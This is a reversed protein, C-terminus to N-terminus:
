IYSHCTAQNYWSASHTPSWKKIWSHVLNGITMKERHLDLKQARHIQLYTTLCDPAVKRKLGNLVLCHCSLYTPIYSNKSYKCFLFMWSAFGHYNMCVCSLFQVCRSPADMSSSFVTCDTCLWWYLNIGTFDHKRDISSFARPFSVVGLLSAVVISPLLVVFNTWCNKSVTLIMLGLWGWFPIMSCSILM